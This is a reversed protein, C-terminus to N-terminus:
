KLCIKIKIPCKYFVMENLWNIDLYCFFHKFVGFFYWLYRSCAFISWLYNCWYCYRSVTNPIPGLLVWGVAPLRREVTPHPYHMLSFASSAGEHVKPQERYKRYKKPMKLYKPMKKAKFPYFLTFNKKWM